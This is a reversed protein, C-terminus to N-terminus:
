VIWWWAIICKMSQVSIAFNEICYYRALYQICNYSFICMTIGVYKDELGICYNVNPATSIVITPQSSLWFTIYAYSVDKIVCRCAYSLRWSHYTWLFKFKLKVSMVHCGLDCSIVLDCRLVEGQVVDLHKILKGM